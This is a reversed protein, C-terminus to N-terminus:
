HTFRERFMKLNRTPDWKVTEIMAREEPCYVQEVSTDLCKSCASLNNSQDIEDVETDIDFYEALALVEERSKEFLPAHFTANGVQWTDKEFPPVAYHRDERRTGVFYTDYNLPNYTMVPKDIEAICKTGDVVDRIVPIVTGGIPYDFIATVEKGDGIFSRYAAPYSYVTLNWKRILDDVRKEFKPTWHERFSVIDFPEGAERMLALLVTSDAGGSWLLANMRIGINGHEGRIWALGM